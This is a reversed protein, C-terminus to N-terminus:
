DLWEASEAARQLWKVAERLHVSTTMAAVGYRRDERAFAQAAETELRNLDDELYTVAELITDRPTNM